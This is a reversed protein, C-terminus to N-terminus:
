ALVDMLRDDGELLICELVKMEVVLNGTGQLLQRVVALYAFDNGGFLVVEDVAVFYFNRVLQYAIFSLVVANKVQDHLQSSNVFKEKIEDTNEDQRNAM